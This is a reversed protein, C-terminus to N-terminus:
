ESDSSSESSHTDSSSSTDSEQQGARGFCKKRKMMPAEVGAFRRFSSFGYPWGCTFRGTRISMWLLRILWGAVIERTQTPIAVARRLEQLQESM